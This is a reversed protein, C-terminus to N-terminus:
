AKIMDGRLKWTELRFSRLKQFRPEYLFGKIMESVPRQSVELKIKDSSHRGPIYIANWNKYM